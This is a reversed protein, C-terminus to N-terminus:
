NRFVSPVEDRQSAMQTDDELLHRNLERAWKTKKQAM